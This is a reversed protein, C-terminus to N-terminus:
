ALRFHIFHFGGLRKEILQRWRASPPQHSLTLGQGPPLTTLHDPTQGQCQLGRLHANIEMSNRACFTLVARLGWTWSTRIKPFIQESSSSSHVYIRFSFKMNCTGNNFIIYFLHFYFCKPQCEKVSRKPPTQNAAGITIIVTGAAVRRIILASGRIWEFGRACLPWIVRFRHWM